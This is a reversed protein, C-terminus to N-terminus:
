GSIVKPEALVAFLGAKLVRAQLIGRGRYYHTILPVWGRNEDYHAILLRTPDEFSRTLGQISVELVWPRRLDLTIRKSEHDFARLDFVKQLNQYPGIPPADDIPIPEYVLQVTSHISGADSIIRVGDLSQFSTSPIPPFRPLVMLRPLIVWSIANPVDHPVDAPKIDAGGIVKPIPPQPGPPPTPWPVDALIPRAAGLVVLVSSLAIVIAILALGRIWGLTMDLM